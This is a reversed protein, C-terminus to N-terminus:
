AGARETKILQRLLALSSMVLHVGIGLQTSIMAPGNEVWELQGEPTQRFWDWGVGYPDRRYIPWDAPTAWSPVIYGISRSVGPHHHVWGHDGTTGTGSLLVLNDPTDPGLHSRLQRHHFSHTQTLVHRGSIASSELDRTAVIQRALRGTASPTSGTPDTM